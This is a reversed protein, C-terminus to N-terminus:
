EGHTGPGTLKRYQGPTMGTSARFAKTFWQQDRFGSLAAVQKLPLAPARLLNKARTVHAERICESIGRGVRERFRRELSRRSMYGLHEVVDEVGINREASSDIFQLAAAIEPDDM